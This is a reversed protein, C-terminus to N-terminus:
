GFEYKRDEKARKELEERMEKEIRGAEDLYKRDEKARRALEERMEKEKLNEPLGHITEPRADGTFSYIYM